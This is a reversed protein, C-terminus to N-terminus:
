PHRSTNNNQSRNFLVTTRYKKSFFNYVFCKMCLNCTPLIQLQEWKVGKGCHDCVLAPSTVAKNINNDNSM